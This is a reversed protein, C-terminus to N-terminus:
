VIVRVRGDVRGAWVLGRQSYIPADDGRSPRTWSLAFSYDGAGGQRDRIHVKVTHNNHDRPQEVLRVEGRGEVDELSVQVDRAPLPQSFQFRDRIVGQGSLSQAECTRGRCHIVAEGDVRGSWSLSSDGRFRPQAPRSPNDFLGGGSGSWYARVSYFGSGGQRDEIAISLTYNNDPRPQQIVLVRGRGEVIEVGVEQRRQPLPDLIRFQQRQVPLGQKDEIQLRRGQIHLISTGDVQGEWVLQPDRQARAPLSSLLLALPLLRTTPRM